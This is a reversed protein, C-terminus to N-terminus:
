FFWNLNNQANSALSQEQKWGLAGGTAGLLQCFGRRMAVHYGQLTGFKQYKNKQNCLM